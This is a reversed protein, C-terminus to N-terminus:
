HAVEILALTLAIATFAVTSLGVLRTATPHVVDSGELLPGRLETYHVGAWILIAGGIVTQLLGALAITWHATNAASRALLVGSVMVAIATREWALATREQQLGPDVVTSWRREQVV